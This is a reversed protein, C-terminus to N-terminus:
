SAEDGYPESVRILGAVPDTFNRVRSTPKFDQEYGASNFARYQALDTSQLRDLLRDGDERAKKYLADSGKFLIFLGICTGFALGAIFALIITLM